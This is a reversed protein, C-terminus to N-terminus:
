KTQKIPAVWNFRHQNFLVINKSHDICCNESKGVDSFTSFIDLFTIDVCKEADAYSNAYGFRSFYKEVFFINKDIFTYKQRHLIANAFLSVVHRQWRQQLTRNGRRLLTCGCSRWAQLSFSSQPLPPLFSSLPFTSHSLFIHPFSFNPLILSFKIYLFIKIKKYFKQLADPYTDLQTTM